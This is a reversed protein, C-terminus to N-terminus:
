TGFEGGPDPGTLRASEQPHTSLTCWENRSFKLDTILVGGHNAKVVALDELSDGIRVGENGVRALHLSPGHVSPQKVHLEAWWTEHFTRYKVVHNYDHM